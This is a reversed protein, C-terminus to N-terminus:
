KNRLEKLIDVDPDDDREDFWPTELIFPLEQLREDNIIGAFGDEGIEGEGIHAHEDKQSNLEYVSDNVHIVRLRELGVEDDIEELLENLGSKGAVDYGFAYAHCTDICIGLREEHDTLSIISKLESFKAGIKTGSGDVNELLLGTEGEVEDLVRDIGRAIKEMGAEVGSGTHSGPHFVLYDAGLRVSRRYDDILGDVSKQWLDEKPSAINILYTAHVVVPDLGAEERVERFKLCAEETLEKGQWGRPNKVFIQMANCGINQARDVSKHLGGAISVHKGLKM